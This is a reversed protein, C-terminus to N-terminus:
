LLIFKNMETIIIDASDSKAFHKIGSRLKNLKDDDFLLEEVTSIMENIAKDDEIMVIAGRELLSKANQTQHDDAVNKSPIIISALGGLALESITSAGGRGVALDAIAYAYEMKEIFAGVWVNKHEKDGIRRSIEESYFKGTQWIVNFKNQDTIKDFYKMISENFVRTGLSGGTVLLTKKSKDLGFYEYAASKDSSIFRVNERLPNGSLVIKDKKFFKDMNDYSVFVRQVNKSLIRNAMGAYSNGEWIMTAISNIQAAKIIPASAYGGSGFVIQPKFKKIIRKSLYISLLVKFPLVLNRLSLKRDLGTIPLGIIDYGLNPVKEMEMKGNAGIFLIKLDDGYYAKLREAIAIAPYIHGATGGGSLIVRVASDSSIDKIKM